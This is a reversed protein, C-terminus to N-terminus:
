HNSGVGFSQHRDESFQILKLQKPNETQKCEGVEPILNWQIDSNSKVNNDEDVVM